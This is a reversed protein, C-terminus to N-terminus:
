EVEESLLHIAEDLAARQEQAIEMLQAPVWESIENEGSAWRRVTRDNIELERALKNQWLPGYLAECVVALIEPTM